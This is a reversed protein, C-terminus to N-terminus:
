PLHATVVKAMHKLSGGGGADGGARQQGRNLLWRDGGAVWDEAGGGGERMGSITILEGGIGIWDGGIGIGECTHTGEVNMLKAKMGMCMLIGHTAVVESKHVQMRDAILPPDSLTGLAVSTM